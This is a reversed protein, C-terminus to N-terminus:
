AISIQHTGCDILYRPDDAASPMVTEVVAPPPVAAATVPRGSRAACSACEKIRWWNEGNIGDHHPTCVHELYLSGAAIKNGCDGCTHHKAARRPTTWAAM